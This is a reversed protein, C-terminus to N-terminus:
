MGQLQKRVLKRLLPVVEKEFWPNHKLWALNRPSPHPLPLFEPLYDRCHRVTDTMTKYRRNGLYYAQAYNGVLLTLGIEPLAAHLRPHWLPACEPCPPRDGGPGKGPYCFATAILAIRNEDYFVERPVQMWERLRDGSPDNWPIGTEYVRRGPAQGVIMIKASHGATLIPKPPFPLHYACVECARVECLLADLNKRKASM